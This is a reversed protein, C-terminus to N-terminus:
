IAVPTLEGPVKWNDDITDIEVGIGFLIDIRLLLLTKDTKLLILM